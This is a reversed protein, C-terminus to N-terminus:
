TFKTNLHFFTQSHDIRDFHVTEAVFTINFILMYLKPKSDDFSIM